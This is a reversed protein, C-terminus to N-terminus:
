RLHFSRATRGSSAACACFQWDNRAQIQEPQGALAQNPGGFWMASIGVVETQDEKLQEQYAQLSKEGHWLHVHADFLPSRAAAAQVVLTLAVAVVVRGSVPLILRALKYGFMM